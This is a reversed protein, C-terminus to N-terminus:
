CIIKVFIGVLITGFDRPFYFFLFAIVEMQIRDSPITRFFNPHLHATAKDTLFAATSSYSVQLLRYDDPVASLTKSM